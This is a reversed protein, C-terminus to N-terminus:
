CLVSVAVRLHISIRGVGGWGLGNGQDATGSSGDEGSALLKYPNDAKSFKNWFKSNVMINSCLGSFAPLASSLQSCEKWMAETIWKAPPKNMRKMYQGMSGASITQSM